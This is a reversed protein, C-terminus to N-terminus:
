GDWFRAIVWMESWGCPRNYNRSRDINSSSLTLRPPPRWVVWCLLVSRAPFALLTNIRRPFIHTIALAGGADQAREVPGVGVGINEDM